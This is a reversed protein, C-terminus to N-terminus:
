TAAAPRAACSVLCSTSRSWVPRPSTIQWAATAVSYVARSADLRAQAARWLEDTIIRLDPASRRIWESEPVAVKRKTGGRREWRTQGYIVEGIYLRRNLVERVGTPAWHAAMKATSRAEGAPRRFQGTPNPVGEANLTKAIRLLGKGEACLTFIRRVISAEAENVVRRVNSGERVNMYGLVKGGAVYGNRAKAHMAERTRQIAKRREQSSSWSRM